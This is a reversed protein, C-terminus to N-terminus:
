VHPPEWTKKDWGIRERLVNLQPDLTVATGFPMKNNTWFRVDSWVVEYGEAVSSVNVHIRDAFGLFTQVVDTGITARAQPPLRDERSKPIIAEEMIVGDRVKGLRFINGTEATFQWVRGSLSPLLSITGAAPYAERVIRLTMHHVTLRWIIYLATLGYTIAFLPVPSFGFVLWALASVTHLVFLYPDFLCLADLHWWRRSFPRFCQVGYGNLLDLTIHFCVAAFTWCVLTLWHPWQGFLASAGTGIIVAWILPAPLSHTLGRHTRIYAAKGKLRMFSDFDPAHSGIMTATAMAPLLEPNAAVHPDIMSLGALTLGFLLHSGTDM